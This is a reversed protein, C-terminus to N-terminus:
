MTMQSDKILLAAIAFQYLMDKSSSVNIELQQDPSLVKKKGKTRLLELARAESFPCGNKAARYRNSRNGKTASIYDFWL